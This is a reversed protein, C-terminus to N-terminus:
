PVTPWCLLGMQPRLWWRVAGYIHVVCVEARHTAKSFSFFEAECTAPCARLLVLKALRSGTYQAYCILRFDTEHESRYSVDVSLCSM